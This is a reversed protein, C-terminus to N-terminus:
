KRKSKVDYTKGASGGNAHIYDGRRAKNVIEPPSGPITTKVENITEINRVNKNLNTNKEANEALKHIGAQIASGDSSNTIAYALDNKTHDDMNVLDQETMSSWTGKDNVVSERTLSALPAGSSDVASEYMIKKMFEKAVPGSKNIAEGFSKSQMLKMAAEKQKVRDGAGAIHDVARTAIEGPKMNMGTLTETLIDVEFTNGGDIISGLDENAIAAASFGKQLNSRSEFRGAATANEADEKSIRALNAASSRSLPKNFRLARRLGRSFKNKGPILDVGKNVFKRGAGDLAADARQVARSGAVSRSTKDWSGRIKDGIKTGTINDIVSLVGKIVAITAIMGAMPLLSYLAELFPNGEVVKVLIRSAMVSSAVIVSCTPYVILMAKMSKKWKNFFGETNPLAMSAFAIPSIVVLMIVLAQRAILIGAMLILGCLALVGSALLTGGATVATIAGAGTALLTQYINLNDVAGDWGAAESEILNFLSKGLINSIDVFIISVWYSVNVLIAYILLKPVMKKIGYNSIGINTIQSLIVLSFAIAILINAIDRFSRWAKVVSDDKSAFIEGTKINLFHGGIFKYLGIVTDMVFSVGPCVIWGVGDIACSSQEEPTEDKAEYDPDESNKIGDGDDDGDPDKIKTCTDASTGKKRETSRKYGAPCKNSGSNAYYKEPYDGKRSTTYIDNRSIAEKPELFSSSIMSEKTKAFHCIGSWWGGAGECEARSMIDSEKVGKPLGSANSNERVCGKFGNSNTGRKFGQICEINADDGGTLNYFEFGSLDQATSVYRDNFGEWGSQVWVHCGWEISGKKWTTGIAKCDEKSYTYKVSGAFSLNQNFIGLVSALTIFVALFIKKNGSGRLINIM